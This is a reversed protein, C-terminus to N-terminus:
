CMFWRHFRVLIIIIYSDNMIQDLIITVKIKNTQLLDPWNLDSFSQALFHVVFILVYNIICLIIRKAQVFTYAQARTKEQCAFKGDYSYVEFLKRM